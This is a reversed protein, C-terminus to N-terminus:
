HGSVSITTGNLNLGVLEVDGIPTASGLALDTMQVTLGNTGLTEVGIVLGNTSDLNVGAVVAIDGNGVGTGTVVIQDASISGGNADNLSFNDTGDSLTGITIGGSITTDMAIMQTGTLSGVTQVENGLQINMSVAGLEISMSDLIVASQNTVAVGMGNSTAVSIDGTAITTGAPISVGVNLVPTGATSNGDADIVIDIANNNTNLALNEIVIAGADGSISTLGDNDHVNVGLSLDPTTLGITIGDQGTVASLADDQMPELALASMPAVAVAAALALKKFNM